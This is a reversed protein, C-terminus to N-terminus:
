GASKQKIGDVGNVPMNIFAVFARLRYAVPLKRFHQTVLQIFAVYIFNFGPGRTSSYGCSCLGHLFAPHILPNTTESKRQHPMLLLIWTAGSSSM